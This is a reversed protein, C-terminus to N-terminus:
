AYLKKYIEEVPTDVGMQQITDYIQRINDEMEELADAIESLPKNKQVTTQCDLRM